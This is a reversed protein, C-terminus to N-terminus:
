AHRNESRASSRRRHRLCLGIISLGLLTLSAPEPVKGVAVNTIGITPRRQDAERDYPTCEISISPLPVCPWMGFRTIYEGNRAVFGFFDLEGAASNAITLDYFDYRALNTEVWMSFTGPGYAGVDFGLMDYRPATAVQAIISLFNVNGLLTETDTWITDSGFTFVEGSNLYFVDGRACGGFCVFTLGTGFDNFNSNYAITGQENFATRDFVHNHRSGCDIAAILRACLRLSVLTEAHCM